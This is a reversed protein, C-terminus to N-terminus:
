RYRTVDLWGNETILRPSSYERHGMTENDWRQEREDYRENGFFVPRYKSKYHLEAPSLYDSDNNFRNTDGYGDADPDDYDRYPNRYDPQVAHRQYMSDGYPDRSDRYGQSSQKAYPQKEPWTADQWYREFDDSQWPKGARQDLQRKDVPANVTSREAPGRQDLVPENVGINTRYETPTSLARRGVPAVRRAELEREYGRRWADSPQAGAVSVFCLSALLAYLSLRM